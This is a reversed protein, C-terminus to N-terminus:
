ASPRSDAAIHSKVFSALHTRMESPHLITKAASAAEPPVPRSSVLVIPLNVHFRSLADVEVLAEHQLDDCNVVAFDPRWKALLLDISVYPARMIDFDESPKFLSASGEAFASSGIFLIHMPKKM